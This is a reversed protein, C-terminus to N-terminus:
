KSLPHSYLSLTLNQSFIGTQVGVSSSLSGIALCFGSDYGALSSGPGGCSGDFWDLGDSEFSPPTCTATLRDPATM